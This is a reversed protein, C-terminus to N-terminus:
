SRRDHSRPSAPGKSETYVSYPRTRGEMASKDEDIGLIIFLTLAIATILGPILLPWEDGPWISLRLWFAIALNVLSLPLLWRWGFELIQDSRIRHLSARIWVFVAFM